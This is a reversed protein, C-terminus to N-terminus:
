RLTVTEGQYDITVTRFRSLMDSGLLGALTPGGGAALRLSLITADPLAVADVRWSSIRVRVAESTGSVGTVAQERGTTPLRLESAVRSDVISRAAGTDLAFDYPGRSAVFVPVILLRSGGAGSVVRAHVTGSATSRGAVPSTCGAAAALATVLLLSLLRGPM